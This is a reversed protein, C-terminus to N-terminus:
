YKYIFRLKEKGYVKEYNFKEAFISETLGAKVAHNYLTKKHLVGGDVATYWYDPRVVKDCTFNLSKYLAGNHNFTTDCYSIVIKVSTFEENLKKLCRSIFWSGLNKKQYKPHICFRSLEIIENFKYDGISQHINQRGLKSFVCVSILQSDLYAGFVTGGRGANPLYHYKSLLPRYEDATAKRITIDEFKFSVLEFNAVGTWYKITEVIKNNSLDHEWVVRYEYKDSLNNVVYSAKQRDRVGQSPRSHIWNGNIDILLTQKGPRPIVCDFSWPGINCEKDNPVDNHERYYKINLDDLISYFHTQLSSVSPHNARAEAMKKTIIPDKAWIKNNITMQKRARVLFEASKFYEARTDRSDVWSKKIAKSLSEKQEKTRKKGIFKAKYEETKFVCTRCRYGILGVKQQNNLSRKFGHYSINKINGCAVCKADISQM